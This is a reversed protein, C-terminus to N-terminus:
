NAWVTWVVVRTVELEFVVDVRRGSAWTKRYRSREPLDVRLGTEDPHRLVELVEDESVGDEAMARMAHKDFAVRTCGLVDESIVHVIAL